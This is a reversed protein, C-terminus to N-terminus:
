KMGKMVEAQLEQTKERLKDEQKEVTKIKLEALEKKKDLDEKLSAKDTAVMINGVIKFASDTKEIEELASEVELLQAQMQQKQALFQQLSQEMMSLQNIKEQTEQSPPM